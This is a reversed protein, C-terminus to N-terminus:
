YKAVLKKHTIIHASGSRRKPLNPVVESKPEAPVPRTVKLRKKVKKMPTDQRVEKLAFSIIDSLLQNLYEDKHEYEYNRRILEVEKLAHYSDMGLVAKNFADTRKFMLVYRRATQLLVQVNPGCGLVCHTPYHRLQYWEDDTRVLYMTDKM